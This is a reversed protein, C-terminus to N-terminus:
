QKALKAQVISVKGGTRAPQQGGSAVGGCFLDVDVRRRSTRPRDCVARLKLRSAIRRGTCASKAQSACGFRLAGIPPGLVATFSGCAPILQDDPRRGAPRGPSPPAPARRSRGRSYTAVVGAELRQDRPDDRVVGVIVIRRPLAGPDGLRIPAPDAAHEADADVVRGRLQAYEQHIRSAAARHPCRAPACTCPSRAGPRTCASAATSGPPGPDLRPADVERVAEPQGALFRMVTEPVVQDALGVFSIQGRLRSASAAPPGGVRYGAWFRGGARGLVADAAATLRAPDGM